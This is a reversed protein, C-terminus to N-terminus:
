APGFVDEGVDLVRVELADTQSLLALALRLDVSVMERRVDLAEKAREYLCENSHAYTCM